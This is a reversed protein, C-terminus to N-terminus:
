RTVLYDHQVAPDIATGGAKPVEIMEGVERITDRCGQTYADTLLAHLEGFTYCLPQEKSLVADAYKKAQLNLPGEM